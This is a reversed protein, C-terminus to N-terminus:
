AEPHPNPDFRFRSPVDTSDIHGLPLSLSDSWALAIQQELETAKEILEGLRDLDVPHNNEAVLLDLMIAADHDHLVGAMGKSEVLFRGQQDLWVADPADILTGVHNRLAFQTSTSGDTPVLRWIWPTYDLAVFVRQPGNQFLWRGDDDSSYNRSIFANMAANTVAQRESGLRWQGRLDLSLWGYCDPVSPWKALAARVLDDM